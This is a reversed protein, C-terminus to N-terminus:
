CCWDRINNWRGQRIVQVSLLAKREPKIMGGKSFPLKGASPSKHTNFSAGASPAARGLLSKQSQLLTQKWSSTGKGEAKLAGNNSIREVINRTEVILYCILGGIKTFAWEGSAQGGSLRLASLWQVLSRETVTVDSSSLPSLFSFSTPFFYHWVECNRRCYATLHSWFQVLKGILILFM